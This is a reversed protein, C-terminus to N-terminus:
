LYLEDGGTWEMNSIEPSLYTIWRDRVQRENRSPMERGITSWSDDHKAVLNRLVEDEEPTFKYGAVNRGISKGKM